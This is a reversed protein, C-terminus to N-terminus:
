LINKISLYKNKYKLYKYYYISGGGLNHINERVKDLHTKDLYKENIISQNEKSIYTDLSVLNNETVFKEIDEPIKNLEILKKIQGANYALKLLCNLKIEFNSEEVLNLLQIFNDYETKYKEILVKMKEYIPKLSDNYKLGLINVSNVQSEINNWIDNGNIKNDNPNNEIQKILEGTKFAYDWWIDLNTLM